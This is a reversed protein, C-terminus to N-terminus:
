AQKTGAVIMVPLGAVFRGTRGREEFEAVWRVVDEDSFIQRAHMGAIVSKFDLVKNVSQPDFATVSRMRFTIDSLGADRFMAYLDRALYPNVCSEAISQMIRGTFAYDSSALWCGPMDPESVVVRGGSRTVRVMEQLVKEPGAVHILVRDARIADFTGTAAGLATAPAKLFTLSPVDAHRRRAEVLMAESLDFGVASGGPSVQLALKSLDDGTGCGVDAIRMGPQLGMLEFTEQKYIRFSDLAQMVDLRAVFNDTDVADVRSFDGLQSPHSSNTM